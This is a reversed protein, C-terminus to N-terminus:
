IIEILKEGQQLCNLIHPLLPAFWHLLARNTCNGIRLWVVKPGKPYIQIRAAFDEDKTIIVTANSVAYDWILSDDSSALGIDIVHKAEHGAEKLFLALAPPLQADILFKV